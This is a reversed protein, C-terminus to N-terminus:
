EDELLCCGVIAEALQNLSENTGWTVHECPDVDLHWMLGEALADVLAKRFEPDALIAAAHAVAESQADDAAHRAEDATSAPWALWRHYGPIAHLLAAALAAALADTLGM